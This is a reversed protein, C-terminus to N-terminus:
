YHDSDSIRHWFRAVSELIEDATKTRVFSTPEANAQAVYHRLAQEPAYTSRYVGVPIRCHHDLALGRDLGVAGPPPGLLLVTGLHPHRSVWDLEDLSTRFM